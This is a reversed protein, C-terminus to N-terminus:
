PTILTVSPFYSHVHRPDRTLLSAGIVAAHAGIFFDSLVGTKTGGRQRYRRFVHGALFLAPRPIVLMKAGALELAADLVEMTAHGTALEAYVADNICVEDITKAADLARTSWASWHEDGTMVDILVNTDVLIV